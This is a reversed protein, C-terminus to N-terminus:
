LNSDKNEGSVDCLDEICCANMAEQNGTEGLFHMFKFLMDLFLWPDYEGLMSKFTCRKSPIGKLKPLKWKKLPLM